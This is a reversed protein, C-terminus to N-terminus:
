LPPPGRRAPASWAPRCPWPRRSRRWRRRARAHRDQEDPGALLQVVQRVEVGVVNTRRATRLGSRHELDSESLSWATKSRSPRLPRASRLPRRPQRQALHADGQEFGVDDELDHALEDGRDLLLRTPASTSCPRFGAWCTMLITWSWSTSSSPSPAAASQRRAGFGGVTTMSTPRCPEPLVVVAAFSARGAECSPWRGSSTAASGYRGAATVWSWVSPLCSSM